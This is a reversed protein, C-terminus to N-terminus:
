PDVGATDLLETSDAVPVPESSCGREGLPLLRRVEDGRGATERWEGDTRSKQGPQLM